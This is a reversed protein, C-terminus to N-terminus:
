KKQLSQLASKVRRISEEKGLIELYEFVGPSQARKTLAVRVPWLMTNNTFHEQAILGTFAGELHKQTFEQEAVSELLAQASELARMSEGKDGKKPILLSPDYRISMDTIYRAEEEFDALTTMRSAAAPLIKMIEKKSYKESGDAGAFFTNIRDALKEASGSSEQNIYRSNMWNLKEINFVASAKNIKKLDFERILENLSFFEQETKPNWGLLAIFNIVAEALYGADRYELAPKAGHRKSLKAKDPGLVMPIHAFDPLDWGFAKYLLIHKPTSPLWEEARIVHSIKMEHDDVVNALHYTPFGDSKLLVQDDVNSNEVSVKGYIHDDFSTVGDHPVKLRVVYPEGANVKKQVEEESLSRCLGDYKTAKNNVEHIKRVEALREATCFCRYASGQGLLRDVYQTYLAKRESQFIPGEDISLGYWELAEIINEVAGKVTRERDTDEIRLIFQGGNKRAWLWNFLATRLGGIHLMGTPSPAFRVRITKM